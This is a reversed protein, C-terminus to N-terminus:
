RSTIVEVEPEWASGNCTHADLSKKKSNKIIQYFSQIHDFDLKPIRIKWLAKKEVQATEPSAQSVNRLGLM